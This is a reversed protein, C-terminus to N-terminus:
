DPQSKTIFECIRPYLQSFADWHANALTNSVNQKSTSLQEATQTLNLGSLQSLIFDRQRATWLDELLDLMLLYDAILSDLGPNESCFATKRNKMDLTALSELAQRSRYYASGDMQYSTEAEIAREGIGIGCRFVPIHSLPLLAVKQRFILLFQYCLPAQLLSFQFEDGVTVRFSLVDAEAQPLLSQTDLFATHIGTQLLNREEKSFLRSAIIDCTLVALM